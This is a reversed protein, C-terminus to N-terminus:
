SLSQHFAMTRGGFKDFGDFAEILHGYFNYRRMEGDTIIDLGVAEHLAIAEDVARDEIAKFNAPALQGAEFQQRAELLYTPRLLSGLVEAHYTM